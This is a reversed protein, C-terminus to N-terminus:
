ETISRIKEYEVEYQGVTLIVKSDKVSVSDVTGSVAEPIAGFPFALGNADVDPIFSVEKGILGSAQNMQETQFASGFASSSDGSVTQVAGLDVVYDDVLLSINDGSLKISDVLGVYPELLGESHFSVYKGIMGVAQSRQESDLVKEFTTSLRAVQELQALQTLQASMQSSSMPELPNQHRLQTILLNMYDTRIAESSSAGPVGAHQSM